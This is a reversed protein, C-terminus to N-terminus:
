QTGKTHTLGHPKQEQENNVKKSLLLAWFQEKQRELTKNQTNGDYSVGNFFYSAVKSVLFHVRLNVALKGCSTLILYRPGTIIYFINMRLKLKM